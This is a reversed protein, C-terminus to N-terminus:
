PQAPTRRLLEGCAAAAPHKYFFDRWCPDRIVLFLEFQTVFVDPEQCDHVSMVVANTVCRGHGERCCGEIAGLAVAAVM